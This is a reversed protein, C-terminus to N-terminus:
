SVSEAVVGVGDHPGLSLGQRVAKTHAPASLRLKISRYLEALVVNMEHLAFPMGLCVRNGGGFPFWEHTGFKRELFREPRFLDPEPYLDTRRHVLHSCPALMVGPPYDRGGATFPQKTLRVVFPIITRIRMSERIAADLYTLRDLHEAQLEGGAVQRVEDAIREAAAPHRGIQEIAWALAISTTDHGAMLLTVIADRIEVDDMPRGDASTAALLDALVCPAAIPQTRHRAIFAFILEDLQRLQRFFPMWRSNAFREAPFLPLVAITYRNPRSFALVREIRREFEQLESGVPLGLVAQVIVRLTIRRMAPLAPFPRGRPWSRIEDKTATLMADFFSRMREGKLPPVVLRRQRAHADDDLVLVSTRGVSVTLFANAEGSHLVHSDGRFVDRISDADTLMVATGYHSWRLTFPTGFRRACEEFYSLPSHAYRLLQWWAPARPGPPLHSSPNPM